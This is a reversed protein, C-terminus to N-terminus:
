PKSGSASEQGAHMGTTEHHSALEGASLAASHRLEENCEVPAVHGLVRLRDRMRTVGQDLPRRHRPWSQDVGSRRDAGSRGKRAVANM